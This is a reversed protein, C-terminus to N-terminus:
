ADIHAWTKAELFAAVERMCSKDYVTEHGPFFCYRRWAPWWKVSGLVTGGGTNVVNWVKTKGSASAGVETFVIHTKMTRFPFGTLTSTAAARRRDARDANRVM